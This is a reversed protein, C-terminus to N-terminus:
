QLLRPPEGPDGADALLRRLPQEELELVLEARIESRPDPDMASRRDGRVHQVRQDREAVAVLFGRVRDLIQGLADRDGVADLLRQLEEGLCLSAIISVSRRIAVGAVGCSSANSRVSRGRASPSYMPWSFIRLWSEMKISAATFRLSDSSWTSSNPGGPRPLVVSECMM